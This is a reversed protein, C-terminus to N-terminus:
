GSEDAGKDDLWDQYGPISELDLDVDRLFKAVQPSSTTSHLLRIKKHIAEIKDFVLHGDDTLQERGSHIQFVTMGKPVVDLHVVTSGDERVYAHGIRVRMTADRVSLMTTVKCREDTM